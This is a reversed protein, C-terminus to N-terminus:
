VTSTPDHLSGPAQERLSQLPIAAAREINTDAAVQYPRRSLSLSDPGTADNPNLDSIKTSNRHDNGHGGPFNPETADSLAPGAAQLQSVKQSISNLGLTEQCVALRTDPDTESTKTIASNERRSEKTERFDTTKQSHRPALATVTKLQIRAHAPLM